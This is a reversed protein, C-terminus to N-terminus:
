QVVFDTFFINRVHGDALVENLRTVVEDKLREKGKLTSVEEFTKSSLTRIIIDRVVSRKADMEAALKSSSLEIDLSVKLYRSGSESLLNVIFSDMPYVPGISLLNTSRASSAGSSSTQQVQQTQPQSSDTSGLLLYAALGGGALLLVLLAVIIILVMNGGSKKETVEKKEEPM